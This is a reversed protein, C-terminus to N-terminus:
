DIQEYEFKIKVTNTYTTGNETSSAEGETAYFTKSKLYRTDGNPMLTFWGQSDVENNVENLMESDNYLDYSGIDYPSNNNSPDVARVRVAVESNNKVAFTYSEEEGGNHTTNGNFKSDAVIEVDFKAVRAIDGAQSSTYFRSLSVGSTITTALVLYVLYRMLPLAKYRKKREHRKSRKFLRPLYGSM